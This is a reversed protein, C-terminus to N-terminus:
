QQSDWPHFLRLGVPLTATQEGKTDLIIIKHSFYKAIKFNAKVKTDRRRDLRSFLCCAFMEPRVFVNPRHYKLVDTKILIYLDM